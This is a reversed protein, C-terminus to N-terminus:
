HKCIADCHRGRYVRRANKMGAEVVRKGGMNGEWREEREGRAGEEKWEEDPDGEYGGDGKENERGGGEAYHGIGVVRAKGEGKGEGVAGGNKRQERGRKRGVRNTM